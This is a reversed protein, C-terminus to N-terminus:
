KFISQQITVQSQRLHVSVVTLNKAKKAWFCYKNPRFTSKTEYTKLDKIKSKYIYIYINRNRNKKLNILMGMGQM